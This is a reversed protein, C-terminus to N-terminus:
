EFKSQINDRVMDLDDSTGNEIYYGNQKVHSNFSQLGNADDENIFMARHCGGCANSAPGTIAAPISDSINRTTADNAEASSQMVALSVKQDPVNYTGPNHCSECALTTFYPFFDDETHVKFHAAEFPEDFNVSERDFAQFSHIAHIYSDISRSQMELHSGGSTAVHCTKCAEINGGRDPSHFTTALAEHCANCKAESVFSVPAEFSGDSLKVIETPADLAVMEGDANDYGPQIMIQARKVKGSEIDAAYESMDATMTWTLGSASANTIYANDAATTADLRSALLDDSDYAYLGWKAANLNVKTADYGTTAVSAQITMTTGSVSASDITVAINDAYKQGTAADYIVENYGSHITSFVPAIGGAVHCSSCVTASDWSHPIITKLARGTTDYVDEKIEGEEWHCSKCTTLTFNADTLIMGLKGEHCTVCNAMSQPYPFEMAHSKHVDEMAIAEYSYDIGTKPTANSTGLVEDAWAEPDDQSKQWTAHGGVRGAYHCAACPAFDPLDGANAVRYGHKGYPAGHCKECGSANAASVTTAVAGFSMGDTAVEDYLAVYGKTQIDLKDKVVELWVGADLTEIGAALGTATVSYSGDGNSVVDGQPFQALVDYESNYGAAKTLAYGYWRAFSPLGNGDIYPTGNQTLTFNVTSDTLAADEANPASTVSTIDLTIAYEFGAAYTSQHKDGVGSHCTACSETQVNAVASETAAPSLSDLWEQETGTFGNAVALEYASQGPAGNSGDDGSCGYLGMGLALLALLLVLKFKKM